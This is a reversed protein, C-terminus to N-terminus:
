ALTKALLTGLRKRDAPNLNGIMPLILDQARQSLQEALRQGAATLIVLVARGDKASNDRRVLGRDVARDILGTVSSRELGLFGALEAMTPQRDRLVALMRLQTLSMDNDAAIRSLHAIVTFAALVLNDMVELSTRDEDRAPTMGTLNGQM